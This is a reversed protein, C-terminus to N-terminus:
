DETLHKRAAARLDDGTADGVYTKGVIEHVVQDLQVCCAQLMDMLRLNYPDSPEQRNFIKMLGLISALPARVKHSQLWAIEQLLDNQAQLKSEYDKRTSIDRTYVVAGEPYPFVRIALWIGPNPMYFTEELPIKEQVARRTRELLEASAIPTLVAVMDAGLLSEVTHGLIQAAPSNAYVLRLNNDLAYINDPIAELIAVLRAKYANLKEIMVVKATIDLGTIQIEDVSGDPEQLAVATYEALLRQGAQPAKALRIPIQRGPEALCQAFVNDFPARNHPDLFSRVPKGVMDAPLLGARQALNPNIYTLLGETNIRASLVGTQNELLSELYARRADAKRAREATQQEQRVQKDVDIAMALMANPGYSPFPIVYIRDYFAVGDAAQHLWIGQDPGAGLDYVKALKKNLKDLESKPRITDLGAQLFAERKHGFHALAAPNAELFRRTQRDYVYMAFPSDYFFSRLSDGDEVQRPGAM